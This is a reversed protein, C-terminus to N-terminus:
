QDIQIYRVPFLLSEVGIPLTTAISGSLVAQRNEYFHGVLFRVAAIVSSPVKAAAIGHVAVIEIPQMDDSDVDPLSKFKIRAPTGTQVFYNTNATTGVYDSILNSRVKVSTVSQLDGLPFFFPVGSQLLYTVARQDFLKSCYNECYEVASDIMATILADDDSIDVRLFTKADALSLVNTGDIAATTFTYNMKKTKSISRSRNGRGM